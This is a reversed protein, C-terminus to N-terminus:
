VIYIKIIIKNIIKNFKERTARNVKQPKLKAVAEQYCGCVNMLLQITMKQSMELELHTMATRM